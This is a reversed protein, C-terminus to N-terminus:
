FRKKLVKVRKKLEAIMEELQHRMWKTTLHRGVELIEIAKEGYKAVIYERFKAKHDDPNFQNCDVCGPALNVLDYRTAMHGRDIYHCCDADGWYLRAGCSVCTVTGRDDAATLRVYLSIQTDAEKILTSLSKKDTRTRIM